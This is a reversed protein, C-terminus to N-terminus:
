SRSQGEAGVKPWLKRWLWELVFALILVICVVIGIAELRYVADQMTATSALVIAATIVLASIPEPHAIYRLGLLVLGLAFLLELHVPLHLLQVLVALAVGVTAYAGYRLVAMGQRELPVLGRMAFIFAIWYSRPENLAHAAVLSGILGIALFLFMFVGHTKSPPSKPLIASLGAVKTALMGAVVGLAYVGFVFHEATRAEGVEFALFGFIAGILCRTGARSVELSALLTLALLCLATIWPTAFLGAVVVPVLGLGIRWYTAQAPVSAVTLSGFTFGGIAAIMAGTGGLFISFLGLVASCFGVIAM